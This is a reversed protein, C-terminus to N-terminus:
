EVFKFLIRVDYDTDVAIESATFSIGNTLFTMGAISWRDDAGGPGQIRVTRGISIWEGASNLYLCNYAGSLTCWGMSVINLGSVHAMVDVHNPKFGCVVTHELANTTQYSTTDRITTSQRVNWEGAGDTGTATWQAGTVPGTGEITLNTTTLTGVKEVDYGAMDVNEKADYTSWNGADGTETWPMDEDVDVIVYKWSEAHLSLAIVLIIFTIIKKM